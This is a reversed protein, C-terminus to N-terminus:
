LTGGRLGMMDLIEAYRDEFLDDSRSVLKKHMVKAAVLWRSADGAEGLAQFTTAIQIVSMIAEQQFAMPLSVIPDSLGPDIVVGVSDLALRHQAIIDQASDRPQRDQCRALQGLHLALDLHLRFLEPRLHSRRRSSYSAVIKAIDDKIDSIRAELAAASAKGDLAQEGYYRRLRTDVVTKRVSMAAKGDERDDQCLGCLCGAEGLFRSLVSHRDSYEANGCYNIFVQTHAPVDQIARVFLIDGM